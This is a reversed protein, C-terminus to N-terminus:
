VDQLLLEIQLAELEAECHRCAQDCLKQLLVPHLFPMESVEKGLQITLQLILFNLLTKNLYNTQTTWIKIVKSKAQDRPNELVEGGQRVLTCLLAKGLCGARSSRRTRSVM